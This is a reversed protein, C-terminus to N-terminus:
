IGKEIYKLIVNKDTPQDKLIIWDGDKDPKINSQLVRVYQNFSQNRFVIDHM